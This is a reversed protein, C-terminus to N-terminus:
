EYIKKNNRQLIENFIKIYDEAYLKVDFSLLKDKTNKQKDIVEQRNKQTYEICKALQEGNNIDFTQFYKKYEDQRFGRDVFGCDIYEANAVMVQM